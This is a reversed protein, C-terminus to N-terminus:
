NNIDLLLDEVNTLFLEFKDFNQNSSHYLSVLYVKKNKLNVELILCESLHHNPVVLVPLSERFYAFVGGGKTNNHHNASVLKYDKINIDESDSSLM